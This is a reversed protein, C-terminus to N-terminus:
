YLGCCFCGQGQYEPANGHYKLLSSFLFLDVLFLDMLVVYSGHAMSTRRCMVINLAALAAM